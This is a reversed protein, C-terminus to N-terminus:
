NSNISYRIRVILIFHLGLIDGHLTGGTMKSHAWLTTCLVWYCNTRLGLALGLWLYMFNILIVDTSLHIVVSYCPCRLLTYGLVRRLEYRHTTEGNCWSFNLHFVFIRNLERVCVWVSFLTMLVATFDCEGTVDFLVTPVTVLAHLWPVGWM